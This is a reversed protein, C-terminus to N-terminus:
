EEPYEDSGPVWIFSQLDIMDKPKQDRTDRRVQEAFGLLGAYTGWGPRAVYESSCSAKRSPVGAASETSAM